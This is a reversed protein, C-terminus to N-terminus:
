HSPLLTTLMYTLDMQCPVLVSHKLTVDRESEDTNAASFTHLTSVILFWKNHASMDSFSLEIFSHLYIERM